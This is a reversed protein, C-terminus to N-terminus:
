NDRRAFQKQVSQKLGVWRSRLQWFKSSEMAAIMAEAQALRDQYHAASQQSQALAHQTQALAHQTQALRDSTRDLTYQTQNLKESTQGLQTQTQNLMQQLKLNRLRASDPQLAAAKEYYHNFWETTGTPIWLMSEAAWAYVGAACAQYLEQTLVTQEHSALYQAIAAIKAECVHEYHDAQCTNSKESIRVGSLPVDVRRIPLHSLRLWLNLETPDSEEFYFSDGCVAKSFFSASFPPVLQCTMLNLLDFAAPQFIGTEQGDRDLMKCSGYIVAADPHAAFLDVVRQLADPELVDDCFLSGIIGGRCRHSARYLANIPGHDAESQLSIHTIDTAQALFELSGDTSGGDQIILEFNRYTQAQLSAIADPLYPM